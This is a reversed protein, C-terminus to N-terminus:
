INVLTRDVISSAGLQTLVSNAVVAAGASLSVVQAAIPLGAKTHSMCDGYEYQLPNCCTNPICYNLYETGHVCPEVHGLLM